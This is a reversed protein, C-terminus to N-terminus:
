LGLRGRVTATSQKKFLIATGNHRVTGKGKKSFPGLSADPSGNVEWDM